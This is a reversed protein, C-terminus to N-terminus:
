QFSFLFVFLFIFVLALNVWKLTNAWRGKFVFFFLLQLIVLMSLIKGSQGYVFRLGSLFVSPQAPTKFFVFTYARRPKVGEPRSVEARKFYFGDSNQESCQVQNEAGALNQLVEGWRQYKLAAELVKSEVSPDLTRSTDDAFNCGILIVEKKLDTALHLFQTTPLEYSVEGNSRYRLVQGDTSIHGILCLTKKKSKAFAKEIQDVTRISQFDKFNAAIAANVDKNNILSLAETEAPDFSREFLFSELNDLSINPAVFFGPRMEAMRNRIPYRKGQDSVVSVNKFKDLFRTDLFVRFVENHIWVPLGQVPAPEHFFGELEAPDLMGNQLQLFHNLTDSADAKYNSTAFATGRINDFTIYFTVKAPDAVMVPAQGGNARAFETLMDKDSKLSPEFLQAAMEEVHFFLLAALFPLTKM